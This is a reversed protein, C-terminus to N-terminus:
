LVVIGESFEEVIPLIWELYTVQTTNPFHMNVFTSKQQGILGNLFLSGGEVDKIGLCLWPVSKALPISM